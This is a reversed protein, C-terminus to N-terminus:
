QTQRGWTNAPSQSSLSPKSTHSEELEFHTLAVRLNSTCGALHGPTCCQTADRDESMGKKGLRVGGGRMGPVRRPCKFASSTCTSAWCANERHQVPQQSILHERSPCRVLPPSTSTLLPTAPGSPGKNGQISLM